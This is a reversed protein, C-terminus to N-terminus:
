KTLSVTAAHIEGRNAKYYQIINTIIGSCTIADTPPSMVLSDIKDILGSLKTIPFHGENIKKLRIEVMDVLSERCEEGNIMRTFTTLSIEKEDFFKRYITRMRGLKKASAATERSLIKM